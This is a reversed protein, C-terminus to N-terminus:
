IGEGRELKISIAEMAESIVEDLERTADIVFIREPEAEAICLYGKRVSEHFAIGEASVRDVGRQRALGTQAPLDLLITLDPKLGGSAFENLSKITKTDIGRAYGQYAISSDTFRDCIVIAGRKLAPIIRSDVHHARAAEFLLLETRDSIINKSDLLLERIRDGIGGGGPEETIIVEYRNSLLQALAAALTSKGAGEIGELTIFFGQGNTM